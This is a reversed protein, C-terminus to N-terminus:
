NHGSPEKVTWDPPVALRQVNTEGIVIIEDLTLTIGYPEIIDFKTKVVPEAGAINVVYLRHQYANAKKNFVSGVMFIHHDDRRGIGEALDEFGKPKAVFVYEGKLDLRRIVGYVDVAIVGNTLCIPAKVRGEMTRTFLEDFKGHEYRVLHIQDNTGVSTRFCFLGTRLWSYENVDAFNDALCPINVALILFAALLLVMGSSSSGIQVPVNTFRSYNTLQNRVKSLISEHKM